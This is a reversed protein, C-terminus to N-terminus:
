AAERRDLGWQSLRTEIQESLDALRQFRQDLPSTNPSGAFEIWGVAQGAVHLTTVTQWLEGGSNAASEDEYVFTRTAGRMAIRLKVRELGLAEAGERLEQWVQVWVWSPFSSRVPANMNPVPRGVAITKPPRDVAREGRASDGSAWKLWNWPRM